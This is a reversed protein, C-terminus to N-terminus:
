LEDKEPPGADEDESASEDSSTKKAAKGGKGRQMLMFLALAVVVVALVVLLWWYSDVFSKAKEQVTMTVQDTSTLGGADRVTLTATYTGAKDFTYEFIAGYKVVETGSVNIRWTYNLNVAGGDDTSASGNFVVSDGANVTQDSGASATPHDNVRITVTDTDSNGAADMVTLTVVFTGSSLFVYTPNQGYLTIQVSADTFNWTLNDVGVNDTSDSGDFTVTAGENVSQDPGANAVPDTQDEVTVVVTDINTNGAADAVTLTVIYQGAHNFQYTPAAGTLTRLNVDTFTWTYSTVGVNDTSASGDFHVTTGIAVTQDPGAHAVPDTMDSVTIVVTDTDTLGAADRVTLTVTHAGLTTFMYQKTLGYLTVSSGDTFTWTYNVIAYNDTSLSGDFTFSSGLAVNQDSGANATPPTVDAVTVTMSDPASTQGITDTVVLEVTYTGPTDFTFVPSVNYIEVSLSLITWTYNTIGVDDSSGSGDFTVQVDEDVTQDPGADAVPLMDATINVWASDTATYGAGDSVELTVLYSGTTNFVTDVVMGDLAVPNGWGDVYTWTYSTIGVNDFSGSADLTVTTNVVANQDAGADAIPPDNDVTFFSYNSAWNSALDVGTFMAMYDGSSLEATFDLYMSATELQVTVNLTWMENQMTTMNFMAVNSSIWFLGTPDVAAYTDPGSGYDIGFLAGSPDFVAWSPASGMMSSNVYEGWVHYNNMSDTWWTNTPYRNGNGDSLMIQDSLVTNWDWLGSTWVGPSVETTTLEGIPLGNWIQTAIYDMEHIWVYQGSTGVVEYLQLIVQWLYPETVTSYLDVPNLMSANTAPDVTVYVLPAQNHPTLSVNHTVAGGPAGPLVTQVDPLYMGASVRIDLVLSPIQMEYYGTSNTTTGNVVSFGSIAQVQAMPISSNDSVSTVYGSLTYNGAAGGLPIMYFDYQYSAADPIDIVKMTNEYGALNGGVVSAPNPPVMVSYTGGGSTMVMNLRWYDPYSSFSSVTVQVGDLPSLTSADRVIGYLQTTAPVLTHNAWVTEDPGIMTTYDMQMEYAYGMAIFMMKYSGPSVSIEYYGTDNTVTFNEPGFQRQVRVYAGSIPDTSSEDTVYGKVVSNERTLLIELTVDDGSGLMLMTGNSAYGDASAGVSWQGTGVGLEYSGDALTATYNYMYLNPGTQNSAYVDAGEIPSMTLDDLVHGRVTSSVLSMQFDRSINGAVFQMNQERQSLYSPASLTLEGTGETTSLTYYGSGDTFNSFTSPAGNMRAEVYAGAIPSGSGAVTVYGSIHVQEAGKPTLSLNLWQTEGPALSVGTSNMGTYYGKADFVAVAAVGSLLTTQYYGSGDTTTWNIYTPNDSVMRIGLVHGVTVPEAPNSANTVYGKITVETPPAPTLDPSVTVTAGHGITQVSQANTDFMAKGNAFYVTYTVGGEVWLEYSGSSDTVTANDSPEGGSTGVAYMVLTDPAPTGSITVTGTFIADETQATAYLSGIAFAGAVMVLCLAVALIRKLFRETGNM